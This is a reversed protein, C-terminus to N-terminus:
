SNLKVTAHYIVVGEEQTRTVMFHLAHKSIHFHTSNTKMNTETVMQTYYLIKIPFCNSLRVICSIKLLLVKVFQNYTKM